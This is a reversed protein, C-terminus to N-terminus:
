ELNHKGDQYALTMILRKTQSGNFTYTPINTNSDVSVGIPQISTPVQVLGWKSNLLNSLNLVDVSFQITNTKGAAIKFNYDQILKMDWKGRWPSLAGYREYQGRRGSL